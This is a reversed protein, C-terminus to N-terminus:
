QPKVVPVNPITNHDAEKASTIKSEIPAKVSASKPPPTPYLHLTCENVGVLSDSSEEDQQGEQKELIEQFKANCPPYYNPPTKQIAPISRGRVKQPTEPKDDVPNQLQFDKLLGDKDNVDVQSEGGERFKCTDANCDTCLHIGSMFPSTSVQTRLEDSVKTCVWYFSLQLQPVAKLAVALVDQSDLVVKTEPGLFIHLLTTILTYVNQNTRLNLPEVPGAAIKERLFITLLWVLKCGADPDTVVIHDFLGSHTQNTVGARIGRQGTWTFQQFRPSFHSHFRSFPPYGPLNNLAFVLRDRFVSLSLEGTNFVIPWLTVIVRQLTCNVDRSAGHIIRLLHMDCTDPYYKRRETAPSNKFFVVLV